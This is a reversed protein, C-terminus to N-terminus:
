PYLPTKSWLNAPRLMFGVWMVHTMNSDEDRVLHHLGGYYWVVIDNNSVAEPPSAYTPLSNGFMEGYHYRTV